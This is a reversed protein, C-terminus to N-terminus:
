NQGQTKLNSTHELSIYADPCLHLQLVIQPNGGCTGDM